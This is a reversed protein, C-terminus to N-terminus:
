PSTQGDGTGTVDPVGSGEGPAPTPPQRFKPDLVPTTPVRSRWFESLEVDEIRKEELFAILLQKNAARMNM